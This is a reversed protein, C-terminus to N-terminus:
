ELLDFWCKILLLNSLYYNGTYTQSLFAITALHTHMSFFPPLSGIRAIRITAQSKNVEMIGTTWTFGEVSSAIMGLESNPCLLESVRILVRFLSFLLQMFLAADQGLLERQVGFCYFMLLHWFGRQSVQMKAM